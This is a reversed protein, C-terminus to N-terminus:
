EKLEAKHVYASCVVYNGGEISYEAYFTAKGIKLKALYKNADPVYLKDGEAEAHQIVQQLEDESIHREGMLQKVKDDIQLKIEGPAV